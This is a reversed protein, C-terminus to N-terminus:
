NRIIIIILQRARWKRKNEHTSAYSRGVLRENVPQLTRRGASSKQFMKLAHSSIKEYKQTHVFKACKDEWFIRQKTCFYAIQFVSIMETGSLLRGRLSNSKPRCRRSISACVQIKNRSGSWVCDLVAWDERQWMKWNFELINSSRRRFTLAKEHKLQTDRCIKKGGWRVGALLMTTCNRCPEEPHEMKSDSLQEAATIHAAWCELSCDSM